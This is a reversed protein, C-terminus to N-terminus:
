LIEADTSARRVAADERILRRPQLKGGAGIEGTGLFGGTAAYVRVARRSELETEVTQGHVFRAASGADLCVRPLEDIAADMSRLWADREAPGLRELEALGIAENVSLRGVATRRLKALHAGCGLARGVDEALVRIYTGKGCRVNISLLNEALADVRLEHITVPRARREVYEGARAYAYLPRGDRKLASHMPPVQNVLGRFQAVVLEVAERSVAVPRREVIEGEADGTTTTAGLAIQAQYTKDAELLASGFKAAEGLLVPLLGTALPDLTGTHGAKEARYLRRVVQLAANSALGCPKDLLLVGDV